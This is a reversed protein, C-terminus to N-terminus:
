DLIQHAAGAPGQDRSRSNRGQTRRVIPENYQLQISYYLMKINIIVIYVMNNKCVMLEVTGDVMWKRWIRCGLGNEKKQKM